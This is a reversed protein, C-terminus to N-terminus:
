NAWLTPKSIRLLKCVDTVTLLQLADLAEELSRRRRPPSQIEHLLSLGRRSGFEGGFAVSEGQAYHAEGHAKVGRGTVQKKDGHNM